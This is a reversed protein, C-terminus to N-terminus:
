RFCEPKFVKVGDASLKYPPNCSANNTPPAASASQPPQASPAAGKAPRAAGVPARPRGPSGSLKSKAPEETVTVPESKPTAAPAPTPLARLNVELSTDRRLYITREESIYGPLSVVLSSAQDSHPFHRELRGAGLLEGNLRIEANAPQALVQLEVTAPVSAAPVPASQAAIRSQHRAYWIGSAAAACFGGAILLASAWSRRTGFQPRSRSQSSSVGDPPVLTEVQSLEFSIAQTSSRPFNDIVEEHLQVEGVVSHQGEAAPTVCEMIGSVTTVPGRLAREISRQQFQRRDGFNKLMFEALERPHVFGHLKTLAQELEHQMEAATAYRQDPEVALARETIHELEPAVDPLTERLRPIEGKALSRIVKGEPAGEWMRRGAIAEWLMVGVAYIDARRDITCEGLLQEPPMYHIKGKIMGARTHNDPSTNIKAIGFDVVKVPGDHLVLVNQPSVDRHVAHMDNGEFDRLEHFHHLGALVQTLVYLHLRLPLAHQVVHSLAAGDLYEMVIVPIGTYEVVEYVQVVNPHNMRASLEAERQFAARMSKDAALDRNLIKLVVLKRIGSALSEALYVKAM